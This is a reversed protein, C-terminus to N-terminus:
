FLADDKRVSCYYGKTLSPGCLFLRWPILFGIGKFLGISIIYVPWCCWPFSWIHGYIENILCLPFIMTFALLAWINNFLVRELLGWDKSPVKRTSGVLNLQREENTTTDLEQEELRWMCDFQDLFWTLDHFEWTLIRGTDKWSVQWLTRTRIM